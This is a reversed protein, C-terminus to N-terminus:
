AVCVNFVQSLAALVATATVTFKVAAGIAEACDNELEAVTASKTAVPVAMFHYEVDDPPVANAFAVANVVPM